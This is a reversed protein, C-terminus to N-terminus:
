VIHRGHYWELALREHLAEVNDKTIRGGAMIRKGSIMKMLLINEVGEMANPKQGSTLVTDILLQQNIWQLDGMVDVSADIAKHFTVPFPHAHRILSEMKRYDIKGGKMLGFVFGDIPIEKFSDIASIM